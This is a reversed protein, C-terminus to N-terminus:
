SNIEVELSPSVRETQLSKQQTQPRRSVLWSRGCPSLNPLETEATRFDASLGHSLEWPRALFEPTAQEDLRVQRLHQQAAHKASKQWCTVVSCGSILAGSCSVRLFVLGTKSKRVVTLACATRQPRHM